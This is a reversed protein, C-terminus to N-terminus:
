RFFDRNFEIEDILSIISNEVAELQKLVSREHMFGSQITADIMSQIRILSAGAMDEVEDLERETEMSVVERKARMVLWADIHNLHLLSSMLCSISDSVESKSAKKNVGREIAEDIMSLIEITDDHLEPKDRLVPSRRAKKIADWVIISIDELRNWIGHAEKNVIKYGGTKEQNFAKQAYVLRLDNLKNEIKMLKDLEVEEYNFDEMADLEIESIEERDDAGLLIEQADMYEQFEMDEIIEAEIADFDLEIGDCKAELWKTTATEWAILKKNEKEMLVKKISENINRM